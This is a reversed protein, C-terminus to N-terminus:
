SPGFLEELIQEDTKGETEYVGKHRLRIAERRRRRRLSGIATQAM